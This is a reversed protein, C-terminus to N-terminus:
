FLSVATAQAERFADVIHECAKLSKLAGVLGGGRWIRAM